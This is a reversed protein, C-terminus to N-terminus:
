CEVLKCFIVDVLLVIKNLEGRVDWVVYFDESSDVIIEKGIDELIDLFVKNKLIEDRM